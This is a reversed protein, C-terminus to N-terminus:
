KDAGLTVVHTFQGAIAAPNASIFTLVITKGASQSVGKGLPIEMDAAKKGAPISFVITEDLSYDTGRIATGTARVRLKVPQSAPRDMVASVRVTKQGNSSSQATQWQVTPNMKLDFSQNVKLYSEPKKDNSMELVHRGNAETIRPGFPDNGAQYHRLWQTLSEWETKGERLIQPNWVHACIRSKMEFFESVLHIIQHPAFYRAQDAPFAAEWGYEVGDFAVKINWKQYNGAPLEEASVQKKNELRYRGGWGKQPAAFREVGGRTVEIYIDKGAMNQQSITEIKTIGAINDIGSNMRPFLALTAQDRQRMGVFGERNYDAVSVWLAGQNHHAVGNRAPPWPVSGTDKYAVWYNYINTEITHVQPRGPNHFKMGGFLILTNNGPQIAEIRTSYRLGVVNRPVAAPKFQPSIGVAARVGGPSVVNLLVFVALLSRM